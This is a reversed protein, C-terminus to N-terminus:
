CRARLTCDARWPWSHNTVTAETTLRLYPWECAVTKGHGENPYMLVNM